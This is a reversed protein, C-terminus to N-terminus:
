CSGGCATGEEAAATGTSLESMGKIFPFSEQALAAEGDGVGRRICCPIDAPPSALVPKSYWLLLRTMPALSEECRRLVEAPDSRKAIKGGPLQEVALSLQPEEDPVRSTPAPVRKPLV